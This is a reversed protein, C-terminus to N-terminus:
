KMEAGSQAESMKLLIAADAFEDIHKKIWAEGRDWWRLKLLKKITDADFRYRLTRAPVGANISYPEIDKTVLAGTGVVAGDGIKVGDMILVNNGIWVDNGIEIHGETDKFNKQNVYSYGFIKEPNTFAPHMAAQTNLPHKGIVCSVNAGISTYRGIVTDTFDGNNNVYSGFGLRCNKLVTNKGLYNKGELVSDKVYSGSKLISGTKKELCIRVFYYVYKRYLAGSLEKLKRTLLDNCM